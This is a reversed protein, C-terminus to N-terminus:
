KDEAWRRVYPLDDGALGKLSQAGFGFLRKRATTPSTTPSRQVRRFGRLEAALGSTVTTTM